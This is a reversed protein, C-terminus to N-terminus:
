SQHRCSLPPNGVDKIFVSVKCTADVGGLKDFRQRQAAQLDVLLVQAAQNVAM